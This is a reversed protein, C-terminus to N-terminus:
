YILETSNGKVIVIEGAEELKSVITAIKNRAEIIDKKYIPGMYEIDEKLLAEARHSMNRFIKDCVTQNMGKLAKALDIEDVERLVKQVSRDDLLVIDEFIFSIEDIMMSFIPNVNYIAKSYYSIDSAKNTAMLVKRLSEFDNFNQFKLAHAAESLVNKDLCNVSKKEEASIIEALKDTFKDGYKENLVTLEKERREKPLYLLSYALSKLFGDSIYDTFYKYMLNEFDSFEKLLDADVNESLDADM